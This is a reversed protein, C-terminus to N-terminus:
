STTGAEALMDLATRTKTQQPAALDVGRSALFAKAEAAVTFTEEPTCKTSLELIQTGNPYFWLEAVLPRSFGKPVFKLKMINLPGLVDLDDLLLGEPALDDFLARQQSTFLRRVPKRGRFVKRVLPGDVDAKLRASCVFGGPMADVEVGFGSVRRLHNSLESPMVPRLKVVSDGLGRTLRRARVVLGHRNLRLDQTDFYAVQRIQARLPDMELQQIVERRGAEPVTVKLEVTDAGALLTLLEGLQAGSLSPTPKDRITDLRPASTNM